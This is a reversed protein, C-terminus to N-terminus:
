LWRFGEFLSIRWLVNFRLLLIEINRNYLKFTAWNLVKYLFVTTENILWVVQRPGKWKTLVSGTKQFTQVSIIVANRPQNQSFTESFKIYHLTVFKACICEVETHTFMTIVIKEATTSCHWCCSIEDLSSIIFTKYTLLCFNVCSTSFAVAITETETSNVKTM